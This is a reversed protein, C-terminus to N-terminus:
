WSRWSNEVQFRGAEFLNKVAQFLDTLRRPTIRVGALHGISQSLADLRDPAPARRDFGASTDNEQFPDIGREGRPVPCRFQNLDRATLFRKPLRPLIRLGESPIPDELGIGVHHHNGATAEIRRPGQGFKGAKLLSGTKIPQSADLRALDVDYIPIGIEVTGSWPQDVAQLDESM